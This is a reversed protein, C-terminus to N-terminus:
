HFTLEFKFKKHMHMNFNSLYKLTTFAHKKENIKNEVKKQQQKMRKTWVTGNYKSDLVGRIELHFRNM